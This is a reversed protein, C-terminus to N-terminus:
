RLERPFSSVIPPGVLDHHVAVTDDRHVSSRARRLAGPQLHHQRAAADSTM